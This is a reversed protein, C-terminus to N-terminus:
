INYVSIIRSFSTYLLIECLQLLYRSVSTIKLLIIQKLTTYINFNSVSCLFVAFFGKKLLKLNRKRSCDRPISKRGYNRCRM